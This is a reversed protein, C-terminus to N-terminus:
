RRDAQRVLIERADRLTPHDGYLQRDALDLVRQALAKASSDNGSRQEIRAMAVTFRAVVAPAAKTTDLEAVAQEHFSRAVDLVGLAGEIEGRHFFVYARDISAEDASLDRMAASLAEDSDSRAKELQGAKMRAFALHSLAPAPALTVQEARRYTQPAEGEHERLV